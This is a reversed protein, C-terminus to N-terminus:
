RTAQSRTAPPLETNGGPDMACKGFGPAQNALKPVYRAARRLAGVAAGNVVRLAQQRPIEAQTRELGLRLVVGAAGQMLGTQAVLLEPRVRHEAQIWKMGDGDATARALTDHGIDEAYTLHRTDGSQRHM